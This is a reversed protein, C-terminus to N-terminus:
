LKFKLVQRGKKSQLVAIYIGTSLKPLQINTEGIIGGYENITQGTINLISLSSYNELQTIKLLGTQAEYHMKALENEQYEEVSIKPTFYYKTKEDVIWTGSNNLDVEVVEQTFANVPLNSEYDFPNTLKLPSLTHDWLHNIIDYTVREKSEWVGNEGLLTEKIVQTASNTYTIDKNQEWFIDSFDYIKESTLKGNTYFYHYKNAVGIDGHLTEVISDLQSSNNYYFHAVKNVVPPTQSVNYNILKNIRGQSNYEYKVKIFQTSNGMIKLFLQHEVLRNNQDYLNRTHSLTDISGNNLTDIYRVNAENAGYEFDIAYNDFITDEVYTIYGKSCQNGTYEFDVSQFATDIGDDYHYYTIERISDLQNTIQASAVAFLLLSFTFLNKKM